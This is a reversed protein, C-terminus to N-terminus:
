SKSLLDLIKIEKFKNDEKTHKFLYASQEEDSIFSINEDTYGIFAKKSDILYQGNLTSEAIVEKNEIHKFLDFLSPQKEAYEKMATFQSEIWYSNSAVSHTLMPLSSDLFIVKREKLDLYAIYKSKKNDKIDFSMQCRSPEYVNGVESDECFQLTALVENASSFPLNNYSTISWLVYRIDNEKLEDINLDIVQCSRGLRDNSPLPDGSFISGSVDRERNWTCFGKSAHHEDLFAVGNDFWINDSVGMSWYSAVRVTNLNEPFDISTGRGYFDLSLDNTPLKINETKKSLIIGNPYQKSLKENLVKAFHPLIRDLDEKKFKVKSNTFIQTKSWNGKPAIIRLSNENETILYKELKVLQSITLKDLISILGEFAAYGFNKYLLHVNRVYFGASKKQAEYIALISKERILTKFDSESGKVKKNYLMDYATQCNLMNYDSPNLRSFLKKWLKRKLAIDNMLTNSGELLTLIFRRESRKFTKFKVMNVPTDFGIDSWEMAMRLVDTANKSLITLKNEFAFRSLTAGNEKFSFSSLDLPTKFESFLHEATAKKRETWKTSSAVLSDFLDSLLSEPAKQLVKYTVTENLEKRPKEEERLMEYPIGFYIMLQKVTYEADSMSLVEAPFNKYVMFDSMNRDEKTLSQFLPQTQKWFTILSEKSLTLLIDFIERSPMFGFHNMNSVITAVETINNRAASAEIKSIFLYNNEIAITQNQTTTNM